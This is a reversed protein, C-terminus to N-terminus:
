SRAGIEDRGTGRGEEQLYENTHHASWTLGHQRLGGADVGYM